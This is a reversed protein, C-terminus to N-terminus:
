MYMEFREIIGNRIDDSEKDDLRYSKLTDYMKIMEEDTFDSRRFNVGPILKGMFEREGYTMGYMARKMGDKEDYYLDREDFAVRQVIRDIRGRNYLEKSEILDVANAGSIWTKSRKSYVFDNWCGCVPCIDYESDFRTKGCVMCVDNM